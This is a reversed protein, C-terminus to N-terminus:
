HRPSSPAIDDPADGAVPYGGRSTVGPRARHRSTSPADGRSQTSTVRHQLRAFAERVEDHHPLDISDDVVGPVRHAAAEDLLASMTEPLLDLQSGVEATLDAWTSPPSAVILVTAARAANVRQEINASNPRMALEEQFTRLDVGIIRQILPGSQELRNRLTQPGNDSLLGAPDQGPPLAISDAALGMDTLIRYATKSAKYGAQDADFAVLVRRGQLTQAQATTFATGLPAVGVFRGDGALTIAMADMAGEVLVASAQPNAALADCGLLTSGKQWVATSRGNLYKPARPDSDDLRRGTFGCITGDDKVVPIIVRDRFTDILTGRRSYRALDAALLEDATFGEDQLAIVLDDWSKAAHGAKLGAELDGFRRRMHTQARSGDYAQSWHEWAALNAAHIRAVSVQPEARELETPVADDWPASSPPHDESTNPASSLTVHDHALLPLVHDSYWQEDAPTLTSDEERTGRDQDEDLWQTARLIARSAAEDVDDDSAVGDHLFDAVEAPETTTFRATEHIVEVLDPWDPSDLFAEAQAEDMDRLWISAWAPLLRTPATSPLRTGAQGNLRWWLAAAPREAPLPRELCHRLLEHADVGTAHARDLVALVARFFPDRVAREDQSQVLATWTKRDQAGQATARAVQESLANRALHQRADMPRQSGLPEPDAEPVGTLVRWLAVTAVLQRRHEFEAAWRPLERRLEAELARRVARTEENIESLRARLYPGWTAHQDVSSPIPALWTLAPDASAGARKAAEGGLRWWLVSALDHASDVERTDYVAQLEEVPDQGPHELTWEALLARLPEWARGTRINPDVEDVGTDIRHLVAADVVNLVAVTRADAFQLCHEAVNRRADTFSAITSRASIASGDREIIKEVLEVATEPDVAEPRIVSHEGGDTSMPVYLHNRARGRSSAVYLGQRDEDGRLLTHTVDVTMGQSSHVTVAYGLDVHQAVYDAALWVDRDTASHRALVAGDADVSRVTFRDGNKVWHTPTIMVRRDNRRAVIRDGVGIEMAARGRVTIDTDVEGRGVRWNRALSNLAAVHDRSTALMMADRGAAFDLAWASVVDDVQADVPGAHLRGNDAWWSAAVRDGARVALSVEAEARDDFRVVERLSVAGVERAIDRVVGGAGVSALQRDDGLLRVTAGREILWQMADRLESTGALGVEDIVVLCREDVSGAWVPFASQGRVAHVLKALTDGQAGLEEGILVGASASPALAVVQGGTDRWAAALVRMATTKGTGAPALVLQARLGSTALDRVLHAQGPNLARGNAEQELLAVDVAVSPVRPAGALRSMAIIDDEAQLVQSSTFLQRLPVDYVSTGDDRLLADPVDVRAAPKDLRVIEPASCAARVVDNVWEDLRSLPVAHERALREAEARVHTIQWRARRASVREVVEAAVDVALPVRGSRVDSALATLVMSEVASDSGLCKEAEARWARRQDDESRPEHKSGRTELTAQQALQVSEQPTPVRGHRRRFASVLVDRRAEISARRSSWMTLLEPNIGVIERVERLGDQRDVPAFTVGLRDTLLAELRSNYRESAAVTASFLVSGDLALWAGDSPDQVKNSIALHTHLDPDGARSDRHEFETAILGRARVKRVGRAGRRTYAVEEELWNLVDAVADRHAERIAVAVDLPAVSWLASVSKVPSFTLDYGAVGIAEPRMKKAIFGSLEGEDLPSAGGNEERFVTLAVGDRVTAREDASLKRTVGHARAYQEYGIALRQRFASDADITLYSRGIRAARLAAEAGAGSKLLAGVIEEAEPHIGEGFLAQMHAETVRDGAALAGGAERLGVLGSGAWRGPSEGKESYYNGLEPAAPGDLDGQATSRLLYLYGTSASLKHLSM